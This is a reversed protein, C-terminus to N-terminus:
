PLGTINVIWDHLVSVRTYVGPFNGLGCGVGWSVVGVLVRQSVLPGGSDGQCADKGGKPYRGACLMRSTLEPYLEHCLGRSLITVNTRRLLNNEQSRPNRSALLKNQAMFAASAQVVHRHGWGSVKAKAGTVESYNQPPLKIPRVNPGFRFQPKVKLLAIDYDYVEPDYLHHVIVQTVQHLTGGVDHRSSGGRISLDALQLEAGGERERVFCHAATVAWQRSLTSAGCEHVGHVQLSM